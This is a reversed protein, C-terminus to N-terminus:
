LPSQVINSDATTFFPSATKQCCCLVQPQNLLTPHIFSTPQTPVLSQEPQKCEPLATELIHLHNKHHTTVM